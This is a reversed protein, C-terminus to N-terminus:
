IAFCPFVVVFGLRTLNHLQQFRRSNNGHYPHSPPELKPAAPCPQYPTPFSLENFLFAALLRSSPVAVCSPSSCIPVCRASHASRDTVGPLAPTSSFRGLYFSIAGFRGPFSPIARPFSRFIAPFRFVSDHKWNKPGSGLTANGEGIYNDGASGQGM